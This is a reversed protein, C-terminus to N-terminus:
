VLTQFKFISIKTIMHVQKSWRVDGVSFNTTSEKHGLVNYPIELKVYVLDGVKYKPEEFKDEIEDDNELENIEDDTSKSKSKSKTSYTKKKL